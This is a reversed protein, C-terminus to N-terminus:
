KGLKALTPEVRLSDGVLGNGYVKDVGRSGLDVAQQGLQAIAREAAARDPERLQAAILGAVIPAAFSTGRVSAFTETSMAAAMDAGPASFDVQPGRCAELLVKKRADVGTVGVVGPYSAPYLPRASPGDNGVAAVVVHGRAILVRVVGALTVNEPGVLSVNVVPVRERAMWAMAEAVTDVAGGTAIGCYVDASFLEAAPAAGHFNGARGAILSAVATGHASPVPVSACGHQHVLVESFVPHAKDVGGDILGVRARAASSDSTALAGAIPVQAGAIPVQAGAIPVLAASSLTVEGSEVYIHNFDYTGGPDLRRLRQLARRTSMGRPAVLVVLTEDLGNLESRRRIEFGEAQANTLAEDTPSFAILETRIIPEGRPDRELAARNTRLLERVRLRRLDELARADLGTAGAVTNAVDTPLGVRPLNPLTVNPLQVNPLQALAAQAGLFAAACLLAGVVRGVSNSIRNRLSM